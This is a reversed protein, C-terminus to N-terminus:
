TGQGAADTHRFHIRERGHATVTELREVKGARELAEYGAIPPAEFDDYLDYDRSKANAEEQAWSRPYGDGKGSLWHEAGDKARDIASEPYSRM